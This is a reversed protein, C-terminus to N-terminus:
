NNDAGVLAEEVYIYDIHVKDAMKLYEDTRGYNNDYAVRGVAM